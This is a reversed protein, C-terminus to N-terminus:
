HSFNALLTLAIHTSDIVYYSLIDVANAGTSLTITSTGGPAIYDSGWTSITDSGTSSQTVIIQGGTGAVPTASPNALTCPCSAHVLTLAYNNSAGTPTFTATSISLTAPTVSQQGSWVNTGSLLPITAGSTGTATSCGSAGNSLNACAAQAFLGTTPAFSLAGTVGNIATFQVPGLVTAALATSFFLGKIWSLVTGIM